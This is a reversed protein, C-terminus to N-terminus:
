HRLKPNLYVYTMDTLLNAVLVVLASVLVVGQIVPIDQQSVALYALSGFGPLAFVAEVIVAGGLIRGVQLGLVTVVPTASNKLAHKVVASSGLGMARGTRIYDQELTDVMSGRIQRTLESATGLALAFGPLVLHRLWEWFGAAVPAYGTAPFWRHDVAFFVILPFAVVFQPVALGLASTSTVVHDVIGDRRFAAWMGAPIAMLLAMLIAVLALSATVPLAEGILTTVPRSSYLSKGLDAAAVHGIYTAFRDIIPENLGLKVRLDHIQAPTASDGALTQAPDGPMLSVLSFSLLMVVFLVPIATLLRGAIQKLM